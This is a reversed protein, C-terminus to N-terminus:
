TPSEVITVTRRGYDITLRCNMLMQSGLIADNFKLSVAIPVRRRKGLWGIEISYANAFIKEGTVSYLEEIGELELKLQDVIQSPIILGGDFGTDILMEVDISDLQTRIVPENHANFYGDIQM